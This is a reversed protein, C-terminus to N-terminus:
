NTKGQRVGWWGVMDNPSPPPSHWVDLYILFVTHMCITIPALPTSFHTLYNVEKNVGEPVRILEKIDKIM